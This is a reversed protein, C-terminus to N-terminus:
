KGDVQRLAADLEDAFAEADQASGLRIEQNILDGRCAAKGALRRLNAADERWKAPLAAIAAGHSRLYNVAAIAADTNAYAEDAPIGNLEAHEFLATGDNRTIAGGTDQSWEGPTAKGLLGLVEELGKANNTPVKQANDNPTLLRLCSPGVNWQRNCMPNVGEQEDFQVIAAYPEIVTGISGVRFYRGEFSGDPWESGDPPAIVEVRDGVKFTHGAM